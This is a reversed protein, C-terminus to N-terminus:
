VRDLQIYLLRYFLFKFRRHIQRLIIAREIDVKVGNELRRQVYFITLKDKTKLSVTLDKLVWLGTKDLHIM